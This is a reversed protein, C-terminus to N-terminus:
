QEGLDGLQPTSPLARGRPEGEPLDPLQAQRLKRALEPLERLARRSLLARPDIVARTGKDTRVVAALLEGLAGQDEFGLQHPLRIDGPELDEPDEIQDVQLAFPVVARDFIVVKRDVFPVSHELGLRVALDLLGLPEGEYVFMQRLYTPGGPLRSTAPQLLVRQVALLPVGLELGGATLFLVSLSGRRAQDAAEELVRAVEALLRDARLPKGLFGQAGAKRMEDERKLESSVVLVPIAALERDARLSALVDAGGLTPMSLDLLVAQPRERRMKELAELGNVATTLEYHAGLVATEFALIAESDDVLLLHPLSM